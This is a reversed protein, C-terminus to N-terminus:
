LLRISSSSSLWLGKPIITVNKIKDHKQINKLYEDGGFLEISEFHQRGDFEICINYDPLYFDFSLLKKYRCNIFKKQKEYKINYKNLIKEISSEGRSEICKPCGSKDYTRHVITTLWCHQCKFCKWWVKKGSNPTVDKPQLKLNKTPHWEKTLNPNIKQLNNELTAYRGSCFPCSYKKGNRQDIRAEWEHGKKCKWWVKKSNNPSINYPTSPYNKHHVWEKALEPNVVALCNDKCTKLGTCYPCNQKQQTRNNVTAPWEHGKKCIWWVKKHSGSVIDNPTLKGNKKYNDTFPVPGQRIILM